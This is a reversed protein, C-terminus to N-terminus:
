EPAAKQPAGPRTVTVGDPAILVAAGICRDVERSLHLVQQESLSATESSATDAIQAVKRMESLKDQVCLTSKVDDRKAAEALDVAARCLARPIPRLPACRADKDDPPAAGFAPAMQGGRM